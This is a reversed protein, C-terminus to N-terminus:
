NQKMESVSVGVQVIRQKDVGAVGVYKFSAGDLERPQTNQIVITEVGSLLAAFPAAQSDSEPDTPFKFPTGVINTFEINGQEDSVWFESIVSQEAVSALVNSITATDM